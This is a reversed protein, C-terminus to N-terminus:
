AADRKKATEILENIAQDLRRMSEELRAKETDQEERKIGRIVEFFHRIHMSWRRITDTM